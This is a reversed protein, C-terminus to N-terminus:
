PPPDRSPFQTFITPSLGLHKLYGQQASTLKENLYRVNNVVVITISAFKTTMMFTTPKETPKGKWGEIREGTETISQRLLYQLLRWILLSIVLILGLAEIRDPRDLYLSDLIMPNKLFRFGEEIGSQEKYAQLVGLSDLRDSIDDPSRKNTLLIFCGAHETLVDLAEDNRSITCEIVYRYFVPTREKNKSPRGRRYVPREKVTATVSHFLGDEISGAAKRADPLCFYDRKEIAECRQKVDEKDRAVQRELRKLRRADHASSHYVVARYGHDYLTVETEYAHYFAVPRKITGKGEALCGLETWNKSKVAEAIARDHEKYTAPLRTIFPITQLLPMNDPTVLASDAIFAKMGPFEHESLFDSIMLLVDNSTKRDSQNGDECSFRVPMGGKVSLLSIIFQRLDPRKDKSFGNTVFFPDDHHPDFDGWVRISTTDFHVFSNEVQALKCARVALASLIKNTGHDYLRDLVRGVNWDCLKKTAIPEGLLLETDKNEYFEHLRFLPSRGSLADLVMALVVRGPSIEMEGRIRSDIEEVLGLRQAFASIIPLHKVEFARIQLGEHEM